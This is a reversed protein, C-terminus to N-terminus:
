AYFRGAVLGLSLLELAFLGGLLVPVAVARRRPSLLGVAAATLVGMAPLLPLLYRGQNFPEGTRVFSLYETWHLGALLALAALALFALTLRQEPGARVLAFAGLALAALSLLALVAYVPNPFRVELWGFAAWGTKVWTDHVPLGAAIPIQEQFPLRPLYFQWLYSAFERPSPDKSAASAGAIQNVAPRDLARATVLWGGAPVAFALAAAGVALAARGRAAPRHRAVGVLLALGAAPVLAYSTAKTLVALGIVAGLAAATGLAPGRGIIRAGLWLALAWLAFLLADPTVSASIFSAMPQLGAVGAAALALRRDGPLLEAALAWTAAVTVLLLVVSLLRMLYLRDFVDGGSALGYAAGAIGYYLPPNTRAPNPGGGDARKGSELARDDRRWDEYEADSWSPKTALIQATQDANSRDNALQQESSFLPRGTEGPLDLEEVLYQAYAFHANEDPSQWPPVLLAWACGLIAVAALLSTLPHGLLARRRPPM